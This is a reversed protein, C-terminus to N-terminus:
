SFVLPSGKQWEQLYVALNYVVGKSKYNDVIEGVRELDLVALDKAVKISPKM